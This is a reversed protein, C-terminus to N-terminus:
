HARLGRDTEFKWTKIITIMDYGELVADPIPAYPAGLRVIKIAAKDLIEYGSSRSIVIGNVPVSGDPKIDVSLMLSGNLRQRKAESPYNLNGIREIKKRWSEHYAAGAYQKTLSSLYRKHPKKSLVKASMDLKKEFMKIENRTQMILDSAKIKPLVSPVIKTITKLDVSLEKTTQIQRESKAQTIAKTLKEPVATPPTAQVEPQPPPTIKTKSPQTTVPDVLNENPTPDPVKKDGNGGGDNNAQALFDAEEPALETQQKVLTIDLSTLPPNKLPSSVTFGVGLLIVLHIIVSFFLTFNLRASPATNEM